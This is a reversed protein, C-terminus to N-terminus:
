SSTADREEKKQREWWLRDREIKSELRAQHREQALRRKTERRIAVNEPDNRSRHNSRAASRRAEHDRMESFECGAWSRGLIQAIEQERMVRSVAYLLCQVPERYTSAEAGAPALEGMSKALAMASDFDLNAAAFGTNAELAALAGDRFSESGCTTCVLKTCLKRRVSEEFYRLLWHSHM